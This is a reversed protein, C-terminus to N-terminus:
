RTEKPRAADAKFEGTARRLRVTAVDWQFIAQMLRARMQFWAIYSDAIDKAEATGIADNQLVSAVWAHSAKEGDTAADVKAKARAADSYANRIELTAGTRALEALADARRAEARARDVHAHTTFPDINWRLVLALGLGRVYYPQSYIWSKPRDVGQADAFNATGYLAFDPFYQRAEYDALAHAADAGERAARLQPRENAENEYAGPDRLDLKVAELPADDIDVDAGPGVLARVGALAQDEGARADELQIRAEALLTAVRQQDQLTVEGSGDKMREDLHEKAKTIEDIGDELM